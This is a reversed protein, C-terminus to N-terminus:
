VDSKGFDLVCARVLLQFTVWHGQRHPCSPQDLIRINKLFHVLNKDLNGLNCHSKGPDPLRPDGAWSNGEGLTELFAGEIRPVIVEDYCYCPDRVVTEALHCSVGKTKGRGWESARARHVRCVGRVELNWPLFNKTGKVSPFPLLLRTVKSGHM